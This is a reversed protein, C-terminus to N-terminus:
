CKECFAKSIPSRRRPPLVEQRLKTQLSEIIYDTAEVGVDAQLLLSEIETVADQNLPGQGVIAKLQNILSRRTKDLGQRLRKLWTIEELDVQDARRGQAALVKASWVFNEDLDTEPEQELEPEAQEIAKAKLRELREEREAEARAWFPLAPEPTAATADTSPALVPEVEAAAADPPLDTAAEPPAAIAAPEPEALASIPEEVEEVAPTKPEAVTTAPQADPEVALGDSEVVPAAAGAAERAAQEAAQQEAQKRKQITQYALKAFSLYDAAPTEAEAPAAEPKPADEQQSEANAPPSSDGAPRNFWNFSSM